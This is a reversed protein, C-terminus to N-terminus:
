RREALLQKVIRELAEIQSGQSEIQQGQREIQGSQSEIVKAQEVTYLTLEEIKQLLKMQFEGLNVGNAQIESANPIGPLHKENKLYQGLQQLPMLRFDPEFVFDPVPVSPSGYLITGTVRVNGVVHLRESPANTGIGVNGTNLIVMRETTLDRDVFTFRGNQHTDSAIFALAGYEPFTGEVYARFQVKGLYDGDLIHAPATNSGRAREFLFAPAFSGGAQNYRRFKGLAQTGEVVLQRDPNTTGIGVNTEIVIGNFGRVGGLIVSNSRAVYSGYGIATAYTLPIQASSAAPDLDANAGIFTNGGEFTDNAGAHFGVATNYGGTTTSLGASAGFFSNGHGLSATGASSGFFSNNGGTKNSHGAENGFFSNDPGASNLRGASRGFFSNNAGLTNWEGAQAGFFCNNEGLTNQFGAYYGFFSNYSATQTWVGAVSGYFTNFSGTTNEGGTEYGSFCNYSGSTTKHGADFGFLSNNYGGVLATGAGQGFYSNSGTESYLPQTGVLGGIAPLPRGNVLFGKTTEIYGDVTLTSTPQTTNIGLRGEADVLWRAKGATQDFLGFSGDVNEESRLRYERGGTRIDEIALSPDTGKLHLQAVPINTGVGVRGARDVYLSNEPAEAELVVPQKEGAVQEAIVKGGRIEFWGSQVSVDEWGGAQVILEWKYVGDPRSRGEEDLLSFRAWNGASHESRFYLREPGAITLVSGRDPVSDPWEVSSEQYVVEPIPASAPAPQSFLSLSLGLCVAVIVFSPRLDM